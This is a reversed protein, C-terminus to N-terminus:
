GLSRGTQRDNPIQMLGRLFGNPRSMLFPDLLITRQHVQVKAAGIHDKNPIILYRLIQEVLPGVDVATSRAHYASLLNNGLSYVASRVYM